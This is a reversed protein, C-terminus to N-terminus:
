PRKCYVLYSVLSISGVMLCLPVMPRVQYTKKAPAIIAYCRFISALVSSGVWRSSSHFTCGCTACYHDNEEVELEKNELCITTTTHHQNLMSDFRGCSACPIWYAVFLM